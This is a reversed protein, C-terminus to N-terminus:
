FASVNSQWCLDMSDFSHNKWYDCISTFQVMFFTSCWIISAKLSHHQLFSKSLGESQLSILGTLGVSIRPFWGQINMPLVSTSAGISQGGSAFLWSVPFSGSAPFSRPCSSFSAASTSITPRCWRSLPGSCVRTSLPPCPLGTHQLEYPRFSDSM